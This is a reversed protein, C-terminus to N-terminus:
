VKSDWGAVRADAVFVGSIGDLPSGAGIAVRAADAVSNFRIGIWAAADQMAARDPTPIGTVRASFPIKLSSVAGDKMAHVDTSATAIFFDDEEGAVDGLSTEIGARALNVALSAVIGCHVFNINTCACQFARGPDTVSENTRLLGETEEVVMREFAMVDFHARMEDDTADGMARGEREGCRASNGPGLDMAPISQITLDSIRLRANVNAAM